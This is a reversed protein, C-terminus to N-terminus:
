TDEEFDYEVSHARPHGPGCNPPLGRRKRWDFIAGVTVFELSAIEADNLGKEYLIMRERDDDFPRGRSNASLGNKRRWQLVSSINTHTLRSIQSDNLGVEYLDMFIKKHANVKEASPRGPTSRKM